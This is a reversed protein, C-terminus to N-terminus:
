RDKVIVYEERSYSREWMEEDVGSFIKRVLQIIMYSLVIGFALIIWHDLLLRLDDM